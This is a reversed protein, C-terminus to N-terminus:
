AALGARSKRRSAGMVGLLASGFLWLAAPVPVESVRINELDIDFNYSSTTPLLWIVLNYSGNGVGIGNTGLFGSAFFSIPGHITTDLVLDAIENSALGSLDVKWLTASSGSGSVESGSSTIVSGTGDILSLSLSAAAANQMATTCLTFLLAIFLKKM